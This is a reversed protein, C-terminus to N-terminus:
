SPSYRQTSARPAGLNQVMIFVNSVDATKHIHSVLQKWGVKQVTQLKWGGTLWVSNLIIVLGLGM